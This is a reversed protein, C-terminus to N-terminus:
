DLVYKNKSAGLGFFLMFLSFILITIISVTWNNTVDYFFGILIPGISALLYGFSQAMGSLEAAQRANTTRLGLLALALSISSGLAFGILTTWVVMLPLAGGLLLGAYGVLACTAIAIMISQQNKIRGALIPTIFTAPLSIFQMYSLLWGGTEMSFGASRIIEPFWSITVYFITSQLGMFITVQWALGSHKLKQTSPEFFQKDIENEKTKMVIFWLILGLVALVSWSLLAHQWGLHLGHALPVSLGSATAAFISMCTTYVGTMLGISNPFKEKIIGPLLVNCIAIGLGILMTGIYLTPLFAISRIIIGANLLILGSLIANDNGLKNALRPALPSMAAFALLPLSTILGANWNALGLDDRITGIIPGVSTIAPRLNFSVLIIATIFLVKPKIIRRM